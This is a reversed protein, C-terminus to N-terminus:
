VVAAAQSEKACFSFCCAVEKAPPPDPPCPHDTEDAHVDDPLAVRPSGVDSDDESDSASASGELHERPSDHNTSDHLELPVTVGRDPASLRHDKQLKQLTEIWQHLADVDPAKLRVKALDNDGLLAFELTDGAHDISVLDLDVTGLLPAGVDDSRYFRLFHDCAVCFRPKWTRRSSSWKHLVGSAAGSTLKRRSATVPDRFPDPSTRPSASPPTEDKEEKALKRMLALTATWEDREAESPCRVVFRLGERYIAFGRIGVVQFRVDRIDIAALLECCESDAFYRLYHGSAVFFRKQFGGPSRARKEMYGVKAPSFRSRREWTASPRFNSKVVLANRDKRKKTEKAKSPSPKDETNEM